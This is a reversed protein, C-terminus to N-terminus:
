PIFNNCIELRVAARLFSWKGAKGRVILLLM